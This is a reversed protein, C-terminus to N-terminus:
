RCVSELVAGEPAEESLKVEVELEPMHVTPIVKVDSGFGSFSHM